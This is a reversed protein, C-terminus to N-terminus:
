TSMGRVVRELIRLKVSLVLEVGSMSEAVSDNM